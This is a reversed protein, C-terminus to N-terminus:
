SAANAYRSESEQSGLSPRHQLVLHLLGGALLASLVASFEGHRFREPVLLPGALSAAALFGLALISWTLGFRKRTHGWVVLGLPLRHGVIVLLTAITINADYSTASSALAASEIVEHVILLVIVLGGMSFRWSQAQLHVLREGVTPLVLGVTFWVATWWSLHKGAEPLLHAFALVVIGGVTAGDIWAALWPWRRGVRGLLPGVVLALTAIVLLLTANM